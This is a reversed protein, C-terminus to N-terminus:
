PCIHLGRHCQKYFPSFLYTKISSVVLSSSCTQWGVPKWIMDHQVWGQIFRVEDSLSQLISCEATLFVCQWHPTNFHWLLRRCQWRSVLKNTSFLLLSGTLQSIHNRKWGQEPLELSMKGNFNKRRDDTVMTILHGQWIVLDTLHGM